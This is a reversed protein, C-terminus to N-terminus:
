VEPDRPFHNSVLDYFITLDTGPFFTETANLLHCMQLAFEMHQPNALNHLSIQLRKHEYDPTMDADTMLIQRILSRAADTKRLHPAILNAMATEARYAIMKITDVLYKKPPSIKKFQDEKPLNKYEIHSPITKRSAKLETLKEEHHVVEELLDGKTQLFTEPDFLDLDEDLLQEGLQTKLRSLKANIARIQNQLQRYEPNVVKITENIEELDYGALQDIGYHQRMYKFFNEQSWRAFMHAAIETISGIRNTTVIATQHGSQALRRVERLEVQKAGIHVDLREALMMQTELGNALFVRYEQFENEPWTDYKNKRYTTVAIRKAWMDQFFEPSYGERDFVLEFRYQNEHRQLSADDPQGPVDNLLRPVIDDRLVKLLGENVEKYVVFFPRGTKDNVWYDTVGRLCLRERSVYRKPLRTQNGHYLRVHGDVYLSGTSEPDDRMWEQSLYAQWEKPKGTLALLKLKERLTRAEPVRDLGLHKGMEGPDQYRLNEIHRIRQLAMMGMMLFISEVQYYGEPLAFRGQIDLLGNSLLAPLAFLVGAGKVDQNPEFHPKAGGPLEGVSAALREHTRTCGVGM